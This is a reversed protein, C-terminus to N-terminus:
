PTSCPTLPTRGFARVGGKKVWINIFVRDNNELVAVFIRKVKM